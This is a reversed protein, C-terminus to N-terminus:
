GEDLIRRYQGRYYLLPNAPHEARYLGVVQGLVIWHDGGEVFESIKCAIAGIAGELRPGGLWPLFAFPPPEAKSWMNAFFNSLGKQEESLINISFGESQRLFGMLHAEKQVCVLVLPPELSVSTIANATMGFVEGGVEVAVVTVGTAFLGITNRFARSDIVEENVTM